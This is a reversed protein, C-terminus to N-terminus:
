EVLWHLRRRLKQNIESNSKDFYAELFYVLARTLSNRGEKFAGEPLTFGLEAVLERVPHEEIKAGAHAYPLELPLPHPLDLYVSGNVKARELAGFFRRLPLDVMKKFSRAASESTAGRHYACYLTRATAKSVGLSATVAKVLSDFSWDLRERYLVPHEGKAKTLIYLAAGDEESAILALPLKRVRALSSLHAQPAEAFFFDEPSSFFQKLDEFLPRRTFTLELLFGIKKAQLGVPSVVAKGDAMFQKAKAGVLVTDLDHVGMRAAAETRCGTFIKAMEQAILNELEAVTLKTKLATHDRHLELPVPITTALSPHAVAVVKRHAKFFHKGEWTKQTVAQAPARLFAFFKKLDEHRAFREFTIARDEDVSLFLGNTGKPAIELILFKERTVTGNYCAGPTTFFLPDQLARM